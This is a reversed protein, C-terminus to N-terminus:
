VFKYTCRTAAIDNTKIPKMISLGGGFVLSQNETAVVSTVSYKALHKHIKRDIMTLNLIDKVIPLIELSSKSAKLSSRNVEWMVQDDRTFVPEWVICLSCEVCSLWPLHVTWYEPLCNCTDHELKWCYWLFLLWGRTLLMNRHM